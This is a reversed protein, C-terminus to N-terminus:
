ANWLLSSAVRALSRAERPSPLGLERVVGARPRVRKVEAVLTASEERRAEVVQRADNAPLRARAWADIEWSLRAHATEDRAIIQMAERVDGEPAHRSQHAATLAGYTERVCGERANDRALELLPRVPGRPVRV